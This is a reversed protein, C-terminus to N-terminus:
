GNLAEAGGSIEALERHIVAEPDAIELENQAHHLRKAEEELGTIESLLTAEGLSHLTRYGALAFDGLEHPGLKSMQRLLEASRDVEGHGIEHKM